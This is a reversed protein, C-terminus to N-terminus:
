RSVLYRRKKHTGHGQLLKVVSSKQISSPDSFASMSHCSVLYYVNLVDAALQRKVATYRPTENIKM